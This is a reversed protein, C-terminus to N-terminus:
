GTWAPRLEDFLTRAFDVDGRLHFTRGAAALYVPMARAFQLALPQPTWRDLTGRDEHVAAVFADYLGQASIDQTTRSLELYEDALRVADDLHGTLFARAARTRLLHWRGRSTGLRDVLSALEDTAADLDDHAGLVFDTDIRWVLGWMEAEPRGGARGLGTMRRAIALQETLHDPGAVADHRAHLAHLVADLGAEDPEHRGAM